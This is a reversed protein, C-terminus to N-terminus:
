ASFLSRANMEGLLQQRLTAVYSDYLGIFEAQTIRTTGDRDSFAPVRGKISMTAALVPECDVLENISEAASFAITSEDGCINLEGYATPNAITSKTVPEFSGAGGRNEYTAVDPQAAGAVIPRQLTM